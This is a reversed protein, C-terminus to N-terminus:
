SVSNQRRRISYRNKKGPRSTDANNEIHTSTKTVTWSRRLSSVFGKGQSSDGKNKATEDEDPIDMRFRRVSGEYQEKGPKGEDFFLTRQDKSQLCRPAFKRWMGRIGRSERDIKNYERRRTSPSNWEIVIPSIQKRQSATESTGQNEDGQSQTVPDWKGQAIPNSPLGESPLPSAPSNGSLLLPSASPTDASIYEKYRGSSARSTHKTDSGTPCRNEASLDGTNERSKGDNEVDPEPQKFLRCSERYYAVLDREARGSNPMTEARLPVGPHLRSYAGSKSRLRGGRYRSASSSRSSAVHSARSRDKTSCSSTRSHSEAPKHRKPKIITAPSNDSAQTSPKILTQAELVDEDATSMSFASRPSGSDTSSIPPSYDPRTNIDTVRFATYFTEEEESSANLSKTFPHESELFLPSITLGFQQQKSAPTDAQADSPIYLFPSSATSDCFHVPSLKGHQLSNVRDNTQTCTLADM